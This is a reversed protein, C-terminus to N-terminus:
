QRPQQIRYLAADTRLFFAGDATALSALTRGPLANKALEQYSTGAALVTTEGTENTIYIRGDAFLPSASCDGGVREQWHQAGTRADLCTVIGNDSVMYLEDGAILPSANRPAGKTVKWVADDTGLEGQAELPVAYLTPTNYGSSVYAMGFAVAPRPVNSYGKPYRFRWLEKGTAPEYAVTWEGGCSVLVPRGNVATLTPTSYAMSADGRFQRWVERGTRKDLAVVYQTDTGDCNIILLNEFVVPSGGPGHRHEYALETRWVIDGVTTLCATGHKGFHVYVRDDEIVPTPSAHSNKKHISGPDDKHFVEVDKVIRGSGLDLCLARLSHGDDLATTLWIQTGVISPSSWGLGPLETKWAIHETESWTVPLGTETSVGQQTPGRFQPWDGAACVAPLLMLCLLWLRSM